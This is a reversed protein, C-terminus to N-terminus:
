SATALFLGPCSQQAGISLLMVKPSLGSLSLAMVQTTVHTVAHGRVMDPDRMAKLAAHVEVHGYTAMGAVQMLMLM